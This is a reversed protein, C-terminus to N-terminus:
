VRPSSGRTTIIKVTCTYQHNYIRVNMHMHIYNHTSIHQLIIRYFEGIYCWCLRSKHNIPSLWQCIFWYAKSLKQLLVFSIDGWWYFFTLKKNMSCSDRERMDMKWMIQLAFASINITTTDKAPTLTIGHSTTSCKNTQILPM